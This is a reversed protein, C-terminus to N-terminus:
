GPRTQGWPVGPSTQPCRRSDRSPTSMVCSPRPGMDAQSLVLFGAGPSVGKSSMHSAAEPSLSHTVPLMLRFPRVEWVPLGSGWHREFM